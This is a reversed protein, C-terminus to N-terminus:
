TLSASFILIQLVGLVQLCVLGFNGEAVTSTPLDLSASNGMLQFGLSNLMKTVAQEKCFVLRGLTEKVTEGEEGGGERGDRDGSANKSESFCFQTVDERRCIGSERM